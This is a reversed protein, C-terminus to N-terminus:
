PLGARLKLQSILRKPDAVTRLFMPRLQITRGDQGRITVHWETKTLLGSPRSADASHRRVTAVGLYTDDARNVEIATIEDWFLETVKGLEVFRVGRKRLELRRGINFANMALLVFALLLVATGILLLVLSTWQSTPEGILGYTLAGAGILVLVGSIILVGALSVQYQQLLKGLPEGKSDDPKSREGPDDEDSDRRRQRKPM